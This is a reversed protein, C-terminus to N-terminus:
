RRRRLILGGLAFLGIGAPEPIIDDTSILLQFDGGPLFQIDFAFPDEIDSIPPGAFITGLDTPDFADPDFPDFVVVTFDATTAFIQDEISTGVPGIGLGRIGTPSFTTSPLPEDPVDADVAGLGPFFAIEGDFPFGVGNNAFVNGNADVQVDFPSDLIGVQRNTGDPLVEALGGSGPISPDDPQMGAYLSGNPAFGLGSPTFGSTFVSVIGEDPGSTPVRLINDASADSIFLDGGPGIELDFPSIGSVFPASSGDPNVRLVFGDAGGLGGTVSVFFTGDPALATGRPTDLEDALIGSVQGDSGVILAQGLDSAGTQALAGTTGLGIAAAALAHRSVATYMDDRAITHPFPM